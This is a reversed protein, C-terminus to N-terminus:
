DLREKETLAMKDILIEIRRDVEECNPCKSAHQFRKAKLLADARSLLKEKIASMSQSGM